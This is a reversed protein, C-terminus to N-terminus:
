HTEVFLDNTKEISISPYIDLKLSSILIKFLKYHCIVYIYM